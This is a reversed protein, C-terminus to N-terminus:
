PASLVRGGTTSYEAAVWECGLLKSQGSHIGPQSSLACVGVEGRSVQASKAGSRVGTGVRLRGCGAAKAIVGTSGLVWLGWRTHISCSHNVQLLAEQQAGAARLWSAQTRTRRVENKTPECVGAASRRTASLTRPVPSRLPLTPVAFIRM